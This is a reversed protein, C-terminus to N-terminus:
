VCMEAVLEDLNKYSSGGEKIAEMGKERLKMLTVREPLDERVSEALVRALEDSDPVSDRNEGVRVAAKLKDVVLTTNFFHDAQMPWALLLVGGVMGELVSGWGLHTLYSGVARHELIMTQPAWGRIVLGKEKVREEFGAPIVDEEGSNDNSNVKKAADRVAWIFRVGSKELAAALAATQAATLRIQSGFGIYVVSNDEPCSDLWASVKAPPISSQGGRDVGAKFPLLPGVTWIRHHNLFRTKVTEVFQPELEYFTNVVLGYSETTATELDNFFSRDEQAWMVSISHANIPLFCISKISFADAVKNIWPSLFSSGLIADPLDSPSQRSLYDVLPDHLRSLADFMHVIAELPLQQLTEVGSPICPHSPFPLILTKFHEPSHLSRLADLYSSNNPTVLVTVTAGRLLIQHTIDLHPVMHGSQPFPIVLVHPKKTTTTM